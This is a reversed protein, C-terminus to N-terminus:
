NVKTLEVQANLCQLNDRLHKYTNSTNSAKVSVKHRCAKCIPYEDDVVVGQDIKLNGFHDWMVSKIHKKPPCLEFIESGEAM